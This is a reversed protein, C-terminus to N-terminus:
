PVEQHIVGSGGCTPCNITVRQTSIHAAVAEGLDLEQQTGTAGIPVVQDLIAAVDPDMSM